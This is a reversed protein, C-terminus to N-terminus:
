NAPVANQLVMDALADYDVGDNGIAEQLSKEGCEEIPTDSNPQKSDKKDEKKDDSKESDKKDDKKPFPPKPKDAPKEDEESDKCEGEKECVTECKDGDCVTTCESGKCEGDACEPAGGVEPEVVVVDTEDTSEDDDDDNGFLVEAPNKGAAVAKDFEEMVGGVIAQEDSDLLPMFAQLLGNIGAKIHEATFGGAAELKPKIYGERVAMNYKFKNIADNNTGDKLSDAFGMFAEFQAPGLTRKPKITSM